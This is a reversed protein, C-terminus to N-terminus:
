YLGFLPGLTGPVVLPLSACRPSWFSPFTGTSASAWSDRRRRSSSSSSRTPTRATSTRSRSCRSPCATTASASPPPARTTRPTRRSPADAPVPLLPACSPRVQHGFQDSPFGLVVLGQDKYKQHVASPPPHGLDARETGVVAHKTLPLTSRSVSRSAPSGTCCLSFVPTLLHRRPEFLDSSPRSASASRGAQRALSPVFVQQPTFGCATATNVILVM